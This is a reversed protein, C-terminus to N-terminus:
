RASILLENGLEGDAALFGKPGEVCAIRCCDEAKGFVTQVASSGLLDHLLDEEGDPSTGGGEVRVLARKTRLMEAALARAAALGCIAPHLLALLLM